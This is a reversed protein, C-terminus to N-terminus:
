KYVIESDLCFHKHNGRRGTATKCAFSSYAFCVAFYDINGAVEINGAKINWAKIDGAKIGRAKINWAKINGAVEIDSDLTLDFTLTLHGKIVLRSDKVLQELEEIKNFVFTEMKEGTFIFFACFLVGLSAPWV